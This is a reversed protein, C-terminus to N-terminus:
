DNKKDKEKDKNKDKSPDDTSSALAKKIAGWGAGSARMAFIEEVPKGSERSLSYALDIEGFGYHYECFWKMIEEYSVGYRQALKMGTPQPNAGTCQGTSETSENSLSQETPSVSPTASPDPTDDVTPTEEAVCDSKITITLRGELHDPRNTASAIFIRIKIESDEPAELWSGNTTISTIFNVMQGADIQEWSAPILEVTSVYEGGSDILYGLKVNAAIDKEELGTNKLAASLNYSSQDACTSVELEEPVFAYSPMADPDATATADPDPDATNETLAEISLALWSGDELTNFTVRVPEDLALNTDLRTQDNVVVDIGSISWVAGEMTDLTGTFTATQQSTEAPYIDDAVWNGDELIRGTVSLLSGLQPEGNITTQPTILFSVGSVTWAGTADDIALLSGELEFHFTPQTLEGNIGAAVAQGPLLTVEQSNNNVRVEGTIVSFQAQGSQSVRVQFSTGHVSATGSSTSVLFFSRTGQLPTVQNFTEGSNQHIEVQLSKGASGNLKALTIDSNASLTTRTGEFFVLTATSAGLTRIRQGRRLRDGTSITEWDTGNRNAIQVQGAVSEVRATDQARNFFWASLGAISLLFILVVTGALGALIPGRWNYGWEALPPRKQPQTEAQVAAMVRRHQEAALEPGPEPHSMGRVAAALRILPELEKGAEPLTNVVTEVPAGKEIECIKQELLDDYNLM